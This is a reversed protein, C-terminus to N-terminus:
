CVSPEQRSRALGVADSPTVRSGLTLWGEAPHFTLATAQFKDLVAVRTPSTSLAVKTLADAIVCRQAMVTAFRGQALPSRSRGDFHAGREAPTASSAVSSDAVEIIPLQDPPHNPVNLAIRQPEGREVRLDGGANVYCQGTTHQLLTNIAVDVAYGKAIGGLDIWLPRNKVLNSEQLDLDRWCAANDPDPAQQPQPLLGNAVLAPAVTVDFIGESANSIEHALRLVKATHPHIPIPVSAPNRNITSVDSFPEHFSMLRHILAIEAFAADIATNATEADEAQVGIKVITGLWPQAREIHVLSTM